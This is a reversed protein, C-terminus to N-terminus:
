SRAVCQRPDTEAGIPASLERRSQHNKRFLALLNQSTLPEMNLHNGRLDRLPSQWPSRCIDCARRSSYPAVCEPPVPVSAARGSCVHGTSRQPLSLARTLQYSTTQVQQFLQLAYGHAKKMTCPNM